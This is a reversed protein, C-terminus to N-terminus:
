VINPLKPSSSLLPYPPSPSSVLHFYFPITVRECQKSTKFGEGKHSHKFIFYSSSLPPSSLPLIRMEIKKLGEHVGKGQWIESIQSFYFFFTIDVVNKCCIKLPM